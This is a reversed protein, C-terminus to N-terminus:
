QSGRRGPRRRGRRVHTPRRRTRLPLNQLCPRDSSREAMRRRGASQGPRHRRTPLDPRRRVSPHQLRRQGLWRVGGCSSGSAPRSQRRRGRRQRVPAPPPPEAPGNDIRRESPSAGRHLGYLGKGQDDVPPARSSDSAASGTPDDRSFRGVDGTVEGIGRRSKEGGYVHRVQRAPESLLTPEIDLYEVLLCQDIQAAAAQEPDVCAAGLFGAHDPQAVQGGAGPPMQSEDALPDHIVGTSHGELRCVIDVGGHLVVHRSGPGDQSGHGLELRRPQLVATVPYRIHVSLRGESVEM